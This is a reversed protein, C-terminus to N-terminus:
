SSSVCDDFTVESEVQALLRTFYKETFNFKPWSVRRRGKINVPHVVEKCFLEADIEYCGRLHIHCRRGDHVYDVPHHLNEAVVATHEIFFAYALVEHEDVFDDVFYDVITMGLKYCCFIDAIENHILGHENL